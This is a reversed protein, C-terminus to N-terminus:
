IKNPDLAGTITGDVTYDELARFRDAKPSWNTARRYDKTEDDDSLLTRPVYFYGDKVGDPNYEYDRTGNIRYCQNFTSAGVLTCLTKSRLILAKLSHCKYFASNGISTVKGFDISECNFCQSFTDGAISSVNPLNVSKLMKLNQFIYPKISTAGSVLETITSDILSDFQKIGENYGDERGNVYADPAVSRDLITSFEEILETQFDSEASAEGIGQSMEELSLEEEPGLFKRTNNAVNTLLENVTAM